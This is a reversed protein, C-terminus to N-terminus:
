ILSLAIVLGVWLWLYKQLMVLLFSPPAPASASCCRLSGTNALNYIWIVCGRLFSNMWLSLSLSRAAHPNCTRCSNSTTIQGVQPLRCCTAMARASPKGGQREGELEREWVGEGVRCRSCSVFIDIILCFFSALCCCCCCSTDYKDSLATCYCCCCCSCTSSFNSSSCTCMNSGHQATTTTTLAM